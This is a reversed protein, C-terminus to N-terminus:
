WAGVAPPLFEFNNTYLKKISNEALCDIDFKPPVSNLIYQKNIHRPLPLQIIVGNLRMKNIKQIESRLKRTTISEPFNFMKLEINLLEAVKRKQRIFSQSAENDGVLIIALRLRKKLKLSSLEKKLDDLIEQAIKKGDIINM